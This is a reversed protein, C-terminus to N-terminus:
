SKKDWSKKLVKAIHKKFKIQEPISNGLEINIYKSFYKKPIDSIYDLESISKAYHSQRNNSNIASLHNCGVQFKERAKVTIKHHRPSHHLMDHYHTLDICLGGVKKLTNFNTITAQRGNNEIFIKKLHKSKSLNPIYQFHLTFVKTKYKNVLYDFEDERMDHRAHVHPIRSVLTKELERFIKQREKYRAGTLFLSIDRLKLRKVDNIMKQWDGAWTVVSPYIRNLIQKETM